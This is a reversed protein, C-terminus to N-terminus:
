HISRRLKMEWDEGAHLEERDLFVDVGAADLAQKIKEAAALDESAYSLFVAGPEVDAQAGEVPPTARAPNDGHRGVWRRHLEAVFEVANGSTFIKTARCFHKLFMVLSPDGSVEADALYDSKGGTSLRQAKSMRILFRTLWGSFRSGLILLNKRNLEDFLIKPSRTESQLSHFFEVLDEHTVAYAPTAFVKGLLHYVIPLGSSKFDAPPVDQVESPSYSLVRTKLNGGFRKQNLSRALFSDFTTTVFLQFPAIDALQLLPEPVPLSEAGLAVTKLAPYIDEM